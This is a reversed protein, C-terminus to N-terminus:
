DEATIFFGEVKDTFFIYRSRDNHFIIINEGIDLSEIWVGKAEVLESATQVEITVRQDM